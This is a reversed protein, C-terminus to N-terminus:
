VPIHNGDNRPASVLRRCANDSSLFFSNVGGGVNQGEASFTRQKPLWGCGSRIGYAVFKKYQHM